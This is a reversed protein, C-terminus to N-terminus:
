LASFLGQSPKASLRSWRAPLKSAGANPNHSGAQAVEFWGDQELKKIIDRSTM